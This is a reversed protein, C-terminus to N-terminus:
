GPEEPKNKEKLPGALSNFLAVTLMGGALEVAVDWLKTDRDFLLALGMVTAGGGWCTITLSHDRWFQLVNV